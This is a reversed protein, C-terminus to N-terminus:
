RSLRRQLRAARHLFAEEARSGAKVRRLAEDTWKLAERYDKRRHEQLKAVQEYAEADFPTDSRALRVWHRLSEGYDGGRRCLHGLARLLPPADGNTALDIGQELCRKAKEPEGLDVLFRATGLQDRPTPGDRSIPDELIDAIHGLLSLMSVVDIENHKFAHAILGARGDRMYDFYARPIRWGPLDQERTLGLVEQELRALTHSELSHPWLRRALPLLDLHPRPHVM